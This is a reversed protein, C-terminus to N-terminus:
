AVAPQDKSRRSWERGKQFLLVNLGALYLGLVTVGIGGALMWTGVDERAAAVRTQAVALREEVKPLVDSVFVLAEELRQTQEAVRSSLNPGTLTETLLDAGGTVTADLRTVATDVDALTQALDGPLDVTPLLRDVLVLLRSVSQIREQLGAYRGQLDAWPGSIFTDIGGALQARTADDLVPDAARAQATANLKIVGDTAAIVGADLRDVLEVARVLGEDGAVFLEEVREQVQPKVVWIGVAAVLGVVIGVVAAVMAVWGVLKM